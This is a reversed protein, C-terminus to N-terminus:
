FGRGEKHLRPNKTQPRERSTESPLVGFQRKYEGAFRSPHDYGCQAAIEAINLHRRERQGGLRRLLRRATNLRMIKLYQQPSMGLCNDFHYQLTRQSVHTAHCIDAITFERQLNTRMFRVAERVVRAQREASQPLAQAAQASSMSLALLLNSLATDALLSMPMSEPWQDENRLIRAMMLWFHRLMMAAGPALQVVGQNIKWGVLESRNCELGTLMSRDMAVGLLEVSGDTRFDYERGGDLVLLSTTDARRRDVQLADDRNLVLGFVVCDAPPSVSQHLSQNTQEGVITMRQGSVTSINGVFKGCSIQLYDQEWGQLLSAHEDIDESHWRGITTPETPGTAVSM